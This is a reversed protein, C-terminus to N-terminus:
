RCAGGNLASERDCAIKGELSRLRSVVAGACLLEVARGGAEVRVGARRKGDDSYDFVAYTTSGNSFSVETRDSSARFHHAYLLRGPGQSAHEPHALEVAGVRGFRYQVSSPPSGCIAITKKQRTDCAFYTAESAACLGGAHVSGAGALALVLMSSSIRAM